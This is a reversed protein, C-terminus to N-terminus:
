ADVEVRTRWYSPKYERLIDEHSSLIAQFLPDRRFGRTGKLNIGNQEVVVRREEGDTIIEYIRAM